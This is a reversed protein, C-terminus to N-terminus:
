DKSFEKYIADIAPAYDIDDVGVIINLESSGQAIMRVNISARGLSSFLRGSMGPTNGMGQGVTAVLALNRLVEISDPHVAERLAEVLKTELGDRLKDGAVVLSLTDIGTPMHEFPLGLSEVVGLVKRGFGTENNMMEKELTFVTYGKRGAIGTVPRRQVGAPVEAVILTGPDDPRNTNRVNIPIGARRAPFIADEHLVTAGMYSLERLERYSLVAIGRPEHVVRPDTMLFGSVDTWNEYLKAGCARAVIAGSIDAGGRSFTKICGDATAGYFATVVAREVGGLAANCLAQTEESQLRGEDDFRVVECADVLPWDLAAAIIRGNLYEGRSAAYDPASEGAMRAIIQEYDKKLCLDLGLGDIIGDFRAAIPAFAAAVDRGALAADHCAYLHDTIKIDDGTRKGPASPVVFRRDPNSRVIDLCKLIQPADALSSGGFKCVIM